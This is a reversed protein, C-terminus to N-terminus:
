RISASPVYKAGPGSAAARGGGHVVAAARAAQGVGVHVNAKRKAKKWNKTKTIAEILDITQWSVEL